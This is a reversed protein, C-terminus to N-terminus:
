NVRCLCIVAFKTLLNQHLLQLNRLKFIVNDVKACFFIYLSNQGSTKSDIEKTFSNKITNNQCPPRYSSLEHLLDQRNRWGIRFNRPVHRYSWTSLPSGCRRFPLSSTSGNRTCTGLTILNKCIVVHSVARDRKLWVGVKVWRCGIHVNWWERSISSIRQMFLQHVKVPLLYIGVNGIHVPGTCAHVCHM